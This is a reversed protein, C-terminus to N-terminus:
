GGIVSIMVQLRDPWKRSSPVSRGSERRKAGGRLERTRNMTIGGGKGPTGEGGGRPRLNRSIIGKDGGPEGGSRRGMQAGELQRRRGKRTVEVCCDLSLCLFGELTQANKEGVGGKAYGKKTKHVLDGGLVWGTIGV